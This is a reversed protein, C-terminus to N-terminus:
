PSLAWHATDWSHQSWVTNIQVMCTGKFCWLSHDLCPSESCKPSKKKKIVYYHFTSHLRLLLYCQWRQGNHNMENVLAIELLPSLASPYHWFLPSSGAQVEQESHLKVLREMAPSWTEWGCFHSQSKTSIRNTHISVASYSSHFCLFPVILCINYCLNEQIHNRSNKPYPQFLDDVFKFQVTQDCDLVQHLSKNSFCSQKRFNERQRRNFATAVETKWLNSSKHSVLLFLM